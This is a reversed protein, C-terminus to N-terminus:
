PPGFHVRSHLCLPTLWTVEQLSIDDGCVFVCATFLSKSSFAGSDRKLHMWGSAVCVREHAMPALPLSVTLSPLATDFRWESRPEQCSGQKDKQWRILALGAKLVVWSNSGRWGRYLGNSGALGFGQTVNSVEVWFRQLHVFQQLAKVAM